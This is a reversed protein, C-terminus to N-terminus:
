ARVVIADRAPGTGIYTVPVGAESEIIEVLQRASAPLADWSTIGETSCKWGPVSVYEPQVQALREM